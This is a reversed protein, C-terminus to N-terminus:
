SLYTYTKVLINRVVGPMEVKDFMVLDEQSFIKAKKTFVISSVFIWILGLIRIWFIDFALILLVTFFIPAVLFLQKWENLKLRRNVICLFLLSGIFFSFSTAIAAGNIGLKPVLLFDGTLNVLGILITVVVSQKILEYATLMPSYLSSLCSIGLGFSRFLM